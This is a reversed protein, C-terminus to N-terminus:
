EAAKLAAGKSGETAAAAEGAPVGRYCALAAGLVLALLAFLVRYADQAGAVRAAGELLTGSVSQILAAGGLLAINLTTAGRGALRQPLLAM